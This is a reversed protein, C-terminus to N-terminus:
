PLFAGNYRATHDACLREYEKDSKALKRFVTERAHVVAGMFDHESEPTIRWRTSHQKWEIIEINAICPILWKMTRADVVALIFNCEALLAKAWERVEPIDFLARPDDDFEAISFSIPVFEGTKMHHGLCEMVASKILSPDKADIEKKGVLFSIM